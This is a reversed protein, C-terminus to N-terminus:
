GPSRRGHGHAAWLRRLAVPGFDQKRLLATAGCSEIEQRVLASPDDISILVIVTEPHSASLRRATELGDMEPMRVDMLVLEPGLEDALGLAEAGSAAEGLPEFGATVEVVDRAAQRFPAQDDVVLVGVEMQQRLM